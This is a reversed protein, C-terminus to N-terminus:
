VDGVLSVYVTNQADSLMLNNSDDDELLILAQIAKRRQTGTSGAAGLVADIKDLLHQRITQTVGGITVVRAINRSVM